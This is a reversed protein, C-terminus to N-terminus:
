IRRDTLSAASICAFYFREAAPQQVASESAIAQEFAFMASRSQYDGLGRLIFYAALLVVGTVLFGSELM